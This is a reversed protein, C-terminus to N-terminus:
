SCDPRRPAQPSQRSLTDLDDPSSRHDRDDNEDKKVATIEIAAMKIEDIMNLLGTTKRPAKYSAVIQDMLWQNYRWLVKAIAAVYDEPDGGRAKPYFCFIAEAKEKAYEEHDTM